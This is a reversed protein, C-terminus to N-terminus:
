RRRRERTEVNSRAAAQESKDDSEFAAGCVLCHKGSQRALEAPDRPSTVGCEDCHVLQFIQKTM